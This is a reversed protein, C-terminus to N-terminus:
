AGRYTSMGGRWGTYLIPRYKKYAWFDSFDSSARCATVRGVLLTHDGTKKKLHVVCEIEAVSDDLVPAEVSTAAHYPLGVERLKDAVKAGSVTALKEVSRILKGDVVCLSFAGAKAALRYTFARPSCSVGVLPPSDSISAYSVAPM